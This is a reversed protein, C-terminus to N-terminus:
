LDSPVFRPESRFIQRQRNAKRRPLLPVAKECLIQLRWRGDTRALRHVGASRRHRIRLAISQRAVRPSSAARTCDRADRIQDATDILM